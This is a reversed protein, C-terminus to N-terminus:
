RILSKVIQGDSRRIINLGRQPAALRRGDAAYIAVVTEANSSATEWCPDIGTDKEMVTLTAAPGLELTYNSSTLGGSLVIPYTGAPSDEVATTTAVPMELMVTEPTDDLKWDSTLRVEFEPNPEGVVRVYNGVTAVVGVPRVLLSGDILEVEDDTITGREVKVRYSGVPSSATAECTLVPTGVSRDVNNYTWKLRPNEDGYERMHMRAMVSKGYEQMTKTESFARWPRNQSFANSMGALVELTTEAPDIGDFIDDPAKPVDHSAMHISVLNTCNAFAKSGISEVSQPVNIRTLLHCGDFAHDGIRKTGDAVEASLWVSPLCMVLEEGDTTYYLGDHEVLGELEKSIGVSDLVPCNGFVGRGVKTLSEPLLLTRLWECGYFARDSLSNGVVSAGTLDIRDLRGLRSSDAQLQGALTALTMIDAANLRGTVTLEDVKTAQEGLLRALQGPETCDITLKLPNTCPAIGCIIDQRHDFKFSQPDLISIDYYGNASGLWGWNMYVMGDERYGELVFAHGYGLSVDAGSYTTAGNVNLENYVIRMWEREDIYRRDYLVVDKYGFYRRLGELQNISLAGSGKVGYTMKAAFGCTRMLLAVAEANEQTYEGSKYVDIMNDWDFKVESFNNVWPTGEVYIRRLGRTAAPWKRMYLVQAMATAVCGTMCNDGGVDPCRDSFPTGQGWKCTTLPGVQPPFGLEEPKTTNIPTDDQAAQVVAETAARLWWGLGENGPDYTGEAVGIVAPAVDDAAVVAFGGEAYGIVSLGATAYLEQLDGKRETRFGRADAALAQRAATSMDAKSRPKASATLTMGAAILTTLLIKNM